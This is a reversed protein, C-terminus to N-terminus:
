EQANVRLAPEGSSLYKHVSYVNVGFLVCKKQENYKKPIQKGMKKLGGLEKTKVRRGVRL